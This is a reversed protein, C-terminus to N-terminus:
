SSPVRILMDAERSRQPLATPLLLIHTKFVHLIRWAVEKLKMRKESVLFIFGCIQLM